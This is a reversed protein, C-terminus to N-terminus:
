TTTASRCNSGLMHSSETCIAAPDFVTSMKRVAGLSLSLCPLRRRSLLVRLGKGTRVTTGSPPPKAEAM